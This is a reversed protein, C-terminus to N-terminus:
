SDTVTDLISDLERSALQSLNKRHARLQKICADIARRHARRDGAELLDLRDIKRHLAKLTAVARASLVQKTLAEFAAVVVAPDDTLIQTAKVTIPVSVTPPPVEATLTARQPYDHRWEEAASKHRKRMTNVIALDASGEHPDTRARQSYAQLALQPELGLELARTFDLRAARADDRKLHALGRNLHAVAFGPQLALARNLAKLAREVSAKREREGGSKWEPWENMRILHVAGCSQHLAANRPEKALAGTLLAVAGAYDEEDLAANTADIAPNTM